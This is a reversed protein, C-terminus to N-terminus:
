AEAPAAPPTLFDTILTSCAARAADPDDAGPCLRRGLDRARGTLIDAHGLQEVVIHEAHPTAAAFVNHNVPEPACRGGIGAGVVLTPCTVVAGSATSTPASPNRGEGDVPDVLVLGVPLGEPGLMSAALWAAQGGRSHGGLFVLSGPAAEAETRVLDAAAAAETRVSVRGLLASPGRRYLQPVVVTVGSAAVPELLDRYSEAASMFGPLFVLLRQGGGSLRM